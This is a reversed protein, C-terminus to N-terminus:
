QDESQNDKQNIEASNTGFFENPLPQFYNFNFQMQQPQPFSFNYFQNKDDYIQQPNMIFQHLYVSPDQQVLKEDDKNAQDLYQMMFPFQQLQMMQFDFPQQPFYSATPQFMFQPFCANEMFGNNAKDAQNNNEKKKRGAGKQRKKVQHSFPNFKQHHSRCQSPSRTGITESMLKFIKSTKKQDSSEMVSRHVNLFNLYTKHEQESWHGTSQQPNLIARKKNKRKVPQQVQGITPPANADPAEEQKQYEEQSM